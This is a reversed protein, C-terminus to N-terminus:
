DDGPSIDALLMGIAVGAALESPDTVTPMSDNPSIDASVMGSAVRATLGSSNMMMPIFVALKGVIGASFPVHFEVGVLLHTKLLAQTPWTVSIKGGV